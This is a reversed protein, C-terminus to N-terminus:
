SQKQISRHCSVIAKILENQITKRSVNFHEALDVQSIGEIYHMILVLRQREALGELANVVLTLTELIIFLQEPSHQLHEPQEALNKLYSEEIKKRKVQNIMIHRATTALYPRPQKIQELLNPTVFIKLFTDHLIDEINTRSSVTKCIFGYLWQSNEVYFQNFRLHNENPSPTSSLLM